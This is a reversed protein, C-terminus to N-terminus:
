KVMIYMNLKTPILSGGDVSLTINGESQFYEADDLNYTWKLHESNPDPDPYFYVVEKLKSPSYDSVTYSKGDIDITFNYWSFDNRFAEIRILMWTGPPLTLTMDVNGLSVTSDGLAGNKNKIVIEDKGEVIDPYYEQPEEGEEPPPVDIVIQDRVEEIHTKFHITNNTDTVSADFSYAVSVSPFVLVALVIVTLLKTNM